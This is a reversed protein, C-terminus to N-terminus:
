RGGQVKEKEKLNMEQILVKALSNIGASTEKDMSKTVGRVEELLECDPCTEPFGEVNEYEKSCVPCVSTISKFM